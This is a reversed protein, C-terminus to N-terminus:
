WGARREGLDGRQGLMKQAEGMQVFILTRDRTYVVFQVGLGIQNLTHTVRRKLM